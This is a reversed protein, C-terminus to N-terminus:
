TNSGSMKDGTMDSDEAGLPFVGCLHSTEGGRGWKCRGQRCYVESMSGRWMGRLLIIGSSNGWVRILKGEIAEEGQINEGGRYDHAQVSSRDM